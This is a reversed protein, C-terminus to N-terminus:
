ATVELFNTVYHIQFIRILNLIHERESENV